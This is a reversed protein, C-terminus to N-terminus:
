LNETVKPYTNLYFSCILIWLLIAGETIRQYLGAYSSEFDIALIWVFAFSTLGCIFGMAAVHKANPWKLAALGLIVLCVPVFLYTLFGSLNHIIQSLGPNLMEPNCGAECPFIGVVITALGYFIGIGAFGLKEKTTSPITKLAFFAFTALLIGSPIIGFFRLHTGFPTGIAYSESILQSIHSYGPFLMGGAITAVIFSSVGLIGCWLAIKGSM